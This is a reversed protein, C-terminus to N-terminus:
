DDNFYSVRRSTTRFLGSHKPHENMFKRAYHSIWGDSIKFEADTEGIATDWRIRHFIAKASFHERKAAVQLAYKEFSAWIHPNNKHHIEFNEKTYEGNPKMEIEGTTHAVVNAIARNNDGLFITTWIILQCPM